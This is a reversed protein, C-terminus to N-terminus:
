EVQLVRDVTGDSVLFQLNKWYGRYGTEPMETSENGRVGIIREGENLYLYRLYLDYDQKAEEANRFSVIEQYESNRFTLSVVPAGEEEKTYVAISSIGDAPIEHMEKLKEIEGEPAMDETKKVANSM